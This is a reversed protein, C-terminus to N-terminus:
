RHSSAAKAERSVYLYVRIAERLVKTLPVSRQDAIRSLREFDSPDLAVMIRIHNGQAFGRAKRKHRVAHETV